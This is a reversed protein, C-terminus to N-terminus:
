GGAFLLCVIQGASTGILWLSASPTIDIQVSDGNALFYGNGAGTILNNLSSTNGVLLYDLASTTIVKISISSTGAPITVQTASTGILLQTIAFSNLGNLNTNVTGSVSSTTSIPSQDSAIVVPISDASITQGLAIAAGGVETLNTDSTGGGASTVFLHGTSDVFAQNDNDASKIV